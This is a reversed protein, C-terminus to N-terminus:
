FMWALGVTFGLGDGLKGTVADLAFDPRAQYRLGLYYQDTGIWGPLSDYTVTLWLWSPDIIMEWALRVGAELRTVATEGSRERGTQLELLLEAHLRFRDLFSQVAPDANLARGLSGIDKSVLAGAQVRNGRFLTTRADDYTRRNLYRWGLAVALAPLTEAPQEARLGYQLNLGATHSAGQVALEASALLEALAGWRLNASLGPPSFLILGLDVETWDPPPQYASISYPYYQRRWTEPAPTPAPTPQPSAVPYAPGPEPTFSLPAVPETQLLEESALDDGPMLEPTSATPSEAGAPGAILCGAALTLVSLFKCCLRMRFVQGLNILGM